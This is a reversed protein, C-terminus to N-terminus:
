RGSIRGMWEKVAADTQALALGRPILTAWSWGEAKGRTAFDCPLPTVNFGLRRYHEAARPLHVASSCVIITKAGRARLQEAVLQSEDSTYQARGAAFAASEPVEREIARARNWEGETPTGPVGTGGGGFVM